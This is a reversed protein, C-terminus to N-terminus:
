RDLGGAESCNVEKPQPESAAVVTDILVRVEVTAKPCDRVVQVRDPVMDQPLLTRNADLYREIYGRDFVAGEALEWRERLAEALQKKAPVELKGMHYQTGETITLQLSVHDGHEKTDVIASFDLFGNAVYLQRLNELGSAIKDRRFVDGRKLPFGNRLAGENIAHNGTFRIQDARALVGETVEAEVTM